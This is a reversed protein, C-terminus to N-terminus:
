LRRDFWNSVRARVEPDLQPGGELLYQSLKDEEGLRLYLQRLRWFTEQFGSFPFVRDAKAACFFAPRPAILALIEPLDGWNLLNPLWYGSGLPINQAMISTYTAAGWCSVVTTLRPYLAAAVGTLLGGKSLGIAGIRGTEVESRLSLFDFARGVEWVSKAMLSWGQLLLRGSELELPTDRREKYGFTEPALVIYGRRCLEVGIGNPNAVEERGLSADGGQSHLCIVAPLPLSHHRPVLLEAPIREGPEGQYEVQERIYEAEEKRDLSRPELRPSDAPGGLLRALQRRRNRQWTAHEKRTPLALAPQM